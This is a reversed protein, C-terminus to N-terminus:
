ADCTPSGSRCAGWIKDGPDAKQNEASTRSGRPLDGQIEFHSNTGRSAIIGYDFVMTWSNLGRTGGLRNERGGLAQRSTVAFSVQGEILGKKVERQRQHSKIGGLVLHEQNM